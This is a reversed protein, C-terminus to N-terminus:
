GAHRRAGARPRRAAPPALFLELLRVALRAKPMKELRICRGDAAYVSVENDDSDFGIDARSVDNLVIWDLKKARLKAQAAAEVDSTEAAFGVVLQGPRRRQALGALIDETPALALTLPAAAKKLKRPAPAAPRYDAVAACMILLDATPFEARVAAAMEAATEVRLVRCGPPPALTVPGSVLTVDHGAAAAAAALAYGMKGSSRNSLFRVPDVAERTPGATVLVRRPATAPATAALRALVAEAIDAAEVMRGVGGGGCAVPGEAPGIFQVGRERLLRSNAQVSPQAWMRPNMAPAVLIPGTHSVVYSSLADDAIGHAMKALVNATAPAIVLLRAREALAIHEPEWEPADWLSTVVPNRSLTFFTQPQVLRTASATMIVHVDVGAKTLRSVIEAAKYAAISGSVGLVV